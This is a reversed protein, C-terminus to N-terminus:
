PAPAQQQYGVRRELMRRFSAVDPAQPVTPLIERVRAATRAGASRATWETAHSLSGLAGAANGQKVSIRARLLADEPNISMPFLRRDIVALAEDLLPRDGVELRWRARLRQADPYAPDHVDLTALRPELARLGDWDRRTELRWGELVAAATAPLPAALKAADADGGLLQDRYLRVLAM